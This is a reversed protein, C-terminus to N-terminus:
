IQAPGPWTHISIHMLMRRFSVVRHPVVFWPRPCRHKFAFMGRIRTHDAETSRAERADTFQERAAALDDADIRSAYSAPGRAPIAAEQERSNRLKVVLHDCLEAVFAGGCQM